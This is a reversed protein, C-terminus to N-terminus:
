FCCQCDFPCDATEGGKDDGIKLEEESYIPWGEETYKRTKTQKIGSGLMDASSGQPIKVQKQPKPDPVKKVKKIGSFLDDIASTKLKTKNSVSPLSGSHKSTKTMTFSFYHFFCPTFLCHFLRSLIYIQLPSSLAHPHQIPLRSTDM